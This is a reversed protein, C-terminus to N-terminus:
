VQISTLIDTYWLIATYFFIKQGKKLLAFLVVPAPVFCVPLFFIAEGTRM